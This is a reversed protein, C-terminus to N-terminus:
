CWSERVFGYGLMISFKLLPLILLPAISTQRTNAKLISWHKNMSYKYIASNGFLLPMSLLLLLTNGLTRVKPVLPAEWVMTYNHSYSGTHHSHQSKTLCFVHLMTFVCNSSCYNMETTAKCTHIRGRVEEEKRKKKKKIITNLSLMSPVFYYWTFANRTYPVWKYVSLFAWFMLHVTHKLLSISTDWPVILFM